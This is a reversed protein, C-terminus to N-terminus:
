RLIMLFPYIQGRREIHEYILNSLKFHEKVLSSQLTCYVIGYKAIKDAKPYKKEAM